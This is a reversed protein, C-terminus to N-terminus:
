REGTKYDTDGKYCKVRGSAGKAFRESADAWEEAKM